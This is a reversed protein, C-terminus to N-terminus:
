KNTLVPSTYNVKLKISNQLIVARDVTKGASPSIPVLGLYKIKNDFKKRDFLSQMFLTVFGSYRKKSPNYKLQVIPTSSSGIDDGGPLYYKGGQFLYFGSVAASDDDIVSNVFLDDMNMIRFELTAPAPSGTSPTAVDMSIEASNIVMSTISDNVGDLQKGLVFDNFASIDLKSIVPSGNQLYRKGSAPAYGEYTQTIPSLDGTRTTSIKNFSLAGGPTIQFVRSLSDTTATHYHLTVRSVLSAPTIGVIRNSSSPIFALGKFAYKFEKIKLSTTDSNNLAHTLLKNGFSNPADTDADGIKVKFLLTDAASGLAANRQLSDYNVEYAAEGLSPGYALSSNYYYRKGDFNSLSDEVIEHVTFREVNKGVAGYSYFDLRLQLTISDYESGAELISLITPRIQTYAEARVTGFDVDQYEGILLRYTAGLFNNDTPISDILVVTSPLLFEQHRLNFKKNQNRFGLLFSDDECSMLFLVAVLLQGTRKVWLNM